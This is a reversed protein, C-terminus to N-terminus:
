GVWGRVSPDLLSPDKILCENARDRHGIWLSNPEEQDWAVASKGGDVEIWQRNKRGPSVQSVTLQGHLGGEFKLLVLAGVIENQVRLPM